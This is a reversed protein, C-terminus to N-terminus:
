KLDKGGFNMSDLIRDAVKKAQGDIRGYDLKDHFAQGTNGLMWKVMNYLAQAQAETRNGYKQDKYVLIWTYGSIPYGISSNTISDIGNAPLIEADSATAVEKLDGGDVFKGTKNRVLGYGLKNAKAYAVEVYGIAGPTQRVLGAVGANQPGGVGVPFKVSSQPGKSVTNAWESSAKALFDVFISTTGSGDSRYVPTINLDPLRVGRNLNAIAPENWKKVKGLYINALLEGSFKLKTTVGPLNYTPVVAGLAMPIFLIPAPADKEEAASFPADSGAFDVARTIIDRKGGGSGKSAYNVSVGSQTKYANFMETYLPFPFSAGSGTITNVQASAVTAGLLLGALIVKKM